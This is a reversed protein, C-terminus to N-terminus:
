RHRPPALLSRGVRRCPRELLGHLRVDGDDAAPEGPQPRRELQFPAPRAGPDDHEFCRAAAVAGAAAVAAEQVPEPRRQRAQDLQQALLLRDREGGLGRAHM